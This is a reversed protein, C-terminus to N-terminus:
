TSENEQTREYSYETAPQKLTIYMVPPISDYKEQIQVVEYQTDDIILLSSSSGTIFKNFPVSILKDARVGAIKAEYFRKIGVTRLGYRLRAVETKIRRKETKYITVLGDNFLERNQKKM